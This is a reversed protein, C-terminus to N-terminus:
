RKRPMTLDLDQATFQKTLLIIQGAHHDVHAVVKYIADLVSVDSNQPHTREVLREQPLGSIVTKAEAVTTQFMAILEARRLGGETSFEEDRMRVDAQGAVGHMVWQRMNGCLHLVLNGPANEHPGAKRWIDEESLKNLCIIIRDAMTQLNGASYQLFNAAIASEM